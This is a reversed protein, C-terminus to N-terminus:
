LADKFVDEREMREMHRTLRLVNIWVVRRLITQMTDKHAYSYVSSVPIEKIQTSTLLVTQWVNKVQLTEGLIMRVILAQYVYAAQPTQMLILLAPQM